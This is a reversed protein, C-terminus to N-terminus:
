HLVQTDIRYSTAMPVGMNVWYRLFDDSEDFTRVWKGYTPSLSAMMLTSAPPTLQTKIIPDGPTWNLMPRRGGGNSTLQTSPLGYNSHLNHPWERDGVGDGYKGLHHIQGPTPDRWKYMTCLCGGTALIGVSYKDTDNTRCLQKAQEISFQNRFMALEEKVGDCSWKTVADDYGARTGIHEM